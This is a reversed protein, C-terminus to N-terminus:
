FFRAGIASISGAHLATGVLAGDCGAQEALALDAGDRVGGGVVLEVGPVATRIATLMTSDVGGSAGVRALDLVIVASVGAEAARVALAVPDPASAGLSGLPVGGRLDLSFAACSPGGIAVVQEVLAWSDLTELALVVRRTGAALLSAAGAVDRVGADVWQAGIEALLDVNIDSRGAISDLDAAYIESVGSRRYARALATADGAEDGALLRSQVPRYGDRRGGRAHVARGGLLDIVGIVRMIAIQV